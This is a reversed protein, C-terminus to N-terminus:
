LVTIIQTNSTGNPTTVKVIHPGPTHDTDFLDFVATIETPSVGHVNRVDFDAPSSDM